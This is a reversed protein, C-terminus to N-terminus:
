RKNSFADFFMGIVSSIMLLYGIMRTIGSILSDYAL